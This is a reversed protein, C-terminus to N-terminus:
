GQKVQKVTYFHPGVCSVICNFSDWWIGETNQMWDMEFDLDSGEVMKATNPFHKVALEIYGQVITGLFEIIDDTTKLLQIFQGAHKQFAFYSYITSQCKAYAGKLKVTSDMMDLTERVFNENSM